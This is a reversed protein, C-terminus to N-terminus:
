GPLDSKPAAGEIKKQLQAAESRAGLRKLADLCDNAKARNRGDFYLLGARLYFKAADSHKAKEALYGREFHLKPNDKDLKLAIDFDRLADDWKAEWSWALGRSRYATEAVGEHAGDALVAYPATVSHRSHLTIGYRGRLKSTVTRRSSTNWTNRCAM